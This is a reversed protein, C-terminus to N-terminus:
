FVCPFLLLNLVPGCFACSLVAAAYAAVAATHFFPLRSLFGPDGQSFVLCKLNQLFVIRVNSQFFGAPHTHVLYLIHDRLGLSRILPM